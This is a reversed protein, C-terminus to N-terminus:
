DSGIHDDFGFRFTYGSTLEVSVDFGLGLRLIFSIITLSTNM